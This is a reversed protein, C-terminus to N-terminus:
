QDQRVTSRGEDRVARRSGRLPSASCPGTRPSAGANGGGRGRQDSGRRVAVGVAQEVAEPIKGSMEPGSNTVEVGKMHDIVTVGLEHMLQRGVSGADEAVIQVREATQDVGPDLPAWAPEPAQRSVNKPSQLLRRNDEVRGGGDAPLDFAVTEEIGGSQNLGRESWRRLEHRLVVIGGNEGGTYPTVREQKVDATTDRSFPNVNKEIHERRHPTGM